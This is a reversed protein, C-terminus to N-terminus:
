REAHGNLEPNYAVSTSSTIGREQCYTQLEANISKGGNDTRLTHVWKQFKNEIVKDLDIIIKATHDKQTLNFVYGFNLCDDHIVLNFKAHSWRAESIMPGILDALPTGFTQSDREVRNEFPKEDIKGMICSRCIGTLHSSTIDMGKVSNSGALRKLMSNGLHGLRQHWTHLDTALNDRKVAALISEQSQIVKMRVEYLEKGLLAEAYTKNDKMICIHDALIHSQFGKQALVKLSLIKGEAEPIHM